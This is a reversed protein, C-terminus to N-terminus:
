NGGGTAGRHGQDGVAGPGGGYRTGRVLPAGTDEKITFQHSGAAAEYVWQKSDEHSKTQVRVRDAVLFSSYFGVGFQVRPPGPAPPPSTTFSPVLLCACGCGCSVLM